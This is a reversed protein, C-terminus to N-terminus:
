CSVPTNEQRTALPLLCKSLPLIQLWVTTNMGVAFLVFWKEGAWRCDLVPDPDTDHYVAFNRRTQNVDEPFHCTLNAKSGTVVSIDCTVNKDRELEFYCFDIDRSRSGYMQCSYRGTHKESVNLIRLTLNDSVENNFEYGPQVLCHEKGSIWLCDLVPNPLFNPDSNYHYVTIDKKTRSIDEPFYCTLQANHMGEAPPIKCSVKQAIMLEALLM